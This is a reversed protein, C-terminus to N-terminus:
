ILSSHIVASSKWLVIMFDMKKILRGGPEESQKNEVSLTKILKLLLVYTM